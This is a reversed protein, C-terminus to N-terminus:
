IRASESSNLFLVHGQFPVAEIPLEYLRGDADAKGALNLRQHLKNEAGRELGMLLYGVVGPDHIVEGLLEEAEARTQCGRAAVQQLTDLILQHRQAHVALAVDAVELKGARSSETLALEMAVKGGLSHDLIHATPLAQQDLWDRM